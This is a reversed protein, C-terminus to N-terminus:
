EVIFKSTQFENESTTIQIFYIGKDFGSLNISNDFSTETEYVCKGIGNFIRVTKVDSINEITFSGNNPNPFIKILNELNNSEIGSAAIGSIENLARDQLRGTIDVKTLFYRHRVYAGIFLLIVAIAIFTIKRSRNIRPFLM